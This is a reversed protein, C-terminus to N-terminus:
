KIVGKTGDIVNQIVWGWEWDYFKIEKEQEGLLIRQANEIWMEWRKKYFQKTLGAWQRNAYDHLKGGESAKKSYWTTILARANIEFLDKSFDDMEKTIQSAQRLWKELSFDECKALNEEQLDINTLFKKATYEFKQKERERFAKIMDKLLEEEENAIVQRKLDVADYFYGQVEKLEDYEKFFLEAGKKFLEKDYEIEINGWESVRTVDLRPRGNIVSEAAGEGKTNYLPNYATDKWILLAQYLNESDKGYRRKGYARLWKELDVEDKEWIAEFFLDNLMPNTNSGEPTIGIGRCHSQKAIRVIEKTITHLHGRLGVRGGFNNLMCYLWPTQAFQGGGWNEWNPSKEAYLDLILVHEEKYDKVGELLEVAPNNGWSQLIWVVDKRCSLMEEMVTKGMVEKKIGECIGGEHFPDAAFFKSTDGFVEKQSDYFLKACDRYGQTDTRLMAPRPLNCWFGQEIIELKPNKERINVPVMGSFGQLVVQMGLRRMQWQNKRALWTRREFWSDPMPGGIGYINAMFAWAYYVPGTIYNKIEEQTYGLKEMFRRYVEEQATIDLVLNVGNLALYDIEKQWEEEEWFAMSYSHTCYNMAYRISLKTHHEEIGKIIPMEKPMKLNGGLRAINVFCFYKLYWNIGVSLGVGTNSTIKVKEKEMELRFYDEKEEKLDLVFWSQYEKGIVREILEYVAQITDERTIERDFECGKFECVPRFVVEKVPEETRYGFIKVDQIIGNGSGEQYILFIRLYGTREGQQFYKYYTGDISSYIQVKGAKKDPFIVELKEVQCIKDLKLELCCPYSDAQFLVEEEGKTGRTGERVQYSLAEM